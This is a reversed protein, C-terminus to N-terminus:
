KLPQTMGEERNSPMRKELRVARYGVLKNAPRESVGM